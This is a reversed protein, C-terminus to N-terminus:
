LLRRGTTVMSIYATYFEDASDNLKKRQEEWEKRRQPDPNDRLWEHMKQLGNTEISTFEVLYGAYRQAASMADKRKEELEPTLFRRDPTDWEEAFVMVNDVRTERFSGGHDHEQLFRGERDFRVLELMKNLLDRDRERHRRRQEDQRIFYVDQGVFGVLLTVFLIWPEWDPARVAWGFALLLILLGSYRAFIARTEM